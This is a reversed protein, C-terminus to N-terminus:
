LVDQALTPSTSVFTSATVALVAVIALKTKWKSVTTERRWAVAQHGRERVNEVCGHRWKLGM